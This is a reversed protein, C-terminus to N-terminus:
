AAHSRSLLLQVGLGVFLAGCARNLWASAAGGRLLAGLRAASLALALGWLTGTAVFTLGLLVFPAGGAGPAVFQPLFALFFLAVKPNLLNTLWAQRFLAASSLAVAEAPGASTARGARFSQVGLWVLYLAGALKVAEFALASTALVASLGAAALATHSLAGAGIGLASLVGARRGRAVSQGVIFLTDPGPILNLMVSAAVFAGFHQIGDM